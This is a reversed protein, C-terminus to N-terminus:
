EPEKALEHSEIAKILDATCFMCSEARWEGHRCRPAARYEAIMELITM